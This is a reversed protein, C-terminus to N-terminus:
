KKCEVNVYKGGQMFTANQVTSHQFYSTLTDLRSFVLLDLDDPDTDYSNVLFMLDGSTIDSQFVELPISVDSFYPPSDSYYYYYYGM